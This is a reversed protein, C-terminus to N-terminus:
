QDNAYQEAFIVANIFADISQITESNFFGIEQCEDSPTFSLDQVTAKYIINCQWVGDAREFEVFYSPESAVSTVVLGMEEFIERQLCTKVSEGHDLGGGPLEWKGNDEKCLLFDGDSNTILAKISVRYTCDNM